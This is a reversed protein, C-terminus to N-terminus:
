SHRPAPSRRVPDQGARQFAREAETDIVLTPCRIQSSVGALTYDLAASFWAAPSPCAFTFTGNQV